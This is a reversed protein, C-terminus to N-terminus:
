PHHVLPPKAPPVTPWGSNLVKKSPQAHEDAARNAALTPQRASAQTLWQDYAELSDIYVDAIMTAFYTGSFQSDHLQYKGIRTPTFKLDITRNPVIDQKIRFNPVYFGHLVDESQMMLHVRRNVPLHLETSTVNKAPYRFSWSWQKAIVEIEEDPQTDNSNGTQAYALEVGLPAHLHVVQMPGLMDMREYTNFSTSAIWLVLLIPIVTWIIEVKLNGRIPPGDSNDGKAARCFCISYLLVGIVILFIVAALTVLLSFLDGVPEAEAVAPTPLWSYAQQGLWHSVVTIVVVFVALLLVNLIQM